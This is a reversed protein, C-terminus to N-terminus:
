DNKYATSMMIKSIFFTCARKHFLTFHVINHMAYINEFYTRWNKHVSFFFYLKNVNKEEEIKKEKKKQLGVRKKQM